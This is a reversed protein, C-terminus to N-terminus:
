AAVFLSVFMVFQSTSSSLGELLVRIPAAVAAGLAAADLKTCTFARV